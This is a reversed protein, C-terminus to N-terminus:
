SGIMAALAQEVAARHEWPLFHNQGPLLEINVNRSGTLRERLFSANAVPVLTDCTGHLISVPTSIRKLLPTLLELEYKLSLLERNANRLSRPLAPSIGRWNGIHQLPHIRELAPDFSGALILLGAVRDPQDIAVKAVVPGGLSHGVLIPRLEAERELLPELALAQRALSPEAGVPGSAGFGPRDIAIYELGAPVNLLFDAWGAAEGPTGHVFIVRRGGRKGARLYSVLLEPEGPLRYTGRELRAIQAAKAMPGAPATCGSGIFFAAATLAKVLTM